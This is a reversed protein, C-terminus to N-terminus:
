GLRRQFPQQLCHWVQLGALEGNCGGESLVRAAGVDGQCHNVVSGGILPALQSDTGGPQCAELSMDTLGKSCCLQMPINAVCICCGSFVLMFLANDIPTVAAVSVSLSTLCADLWGHMM